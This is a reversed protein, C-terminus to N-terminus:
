GKDKLEKIIEMIIPYSFMFGIFWYAVALEFEM